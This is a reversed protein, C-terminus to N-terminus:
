ANREISIKEQILEIIEDPQRTTFSVDRVLGVKKKLGIVIRPHELFNFSARYREHAMMFHIGAGGYKMLWPLNDDLQCSEINDFPIRWSFVGFTLHLSDETIQIVLVRYNVVYFLFLASFCAFVTTWGGIKDLICVRWMALAFFLLTLEIFLILTWKSSVKEQYLATKSKM